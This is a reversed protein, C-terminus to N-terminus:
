PKRSQESCIQEVFDGNDEIVKEAQSRFQNSVRTVIEKKLKGVVGCIAIKRSEKSSRPKDNSVRGVEGSAVYHLLYLEVSNSPGFDMILVM